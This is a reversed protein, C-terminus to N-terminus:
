DWNEYTLLRMSDVWVSDSNGTVGWYIFRLYRSVDADFQGGFRVAGDRNTDPVFTVCSSFITDLTKGFHKTDSFQVGVSIISSDATGGKTYQNWYLAKFGKTTLIAVTTCAGTAPINKTASSDNMVVPLWYQALSISTIFAAALALVKIKM